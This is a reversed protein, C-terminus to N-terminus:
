AAPCIGLHFIISRRNIKRTLMTTRTMAQKGPGGAEGVNMGVEVSSREVAVMMLGAGVLIEVIVDEGGGRVGVFEGVGVDVM